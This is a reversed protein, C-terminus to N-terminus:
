VIDSTNLKLSLQFSEEESHVPILAPIESSEQLGKPKSKKGSKIVQDENNIDHIIKFDDLESTNLTLDSYTTSRNETSVARNKNILSKDFTNKDVQNADMIQKTIYIIYVIDLTILILLYYKYKSYFSSKADFVDKIIFFTILYLICGVIIQILPNPYYKNISTHTLLFFM